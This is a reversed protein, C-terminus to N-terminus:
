ARDDDPDVVLQDTLDRGPLAPVGVVLVSVLVDEAHHAPDTLGLGPQGGVVGGLQRAVDALNDEEGLVDVDHVLCLRRERLLPDAVGRDAAVLRGLDPLLGDVVEHGIRRDRNDDAGQSGCADAEL